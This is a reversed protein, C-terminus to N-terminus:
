GQNNTKFISVVRNNETKIERGLSYRVGESVVVAEIRLNIQNPNQDDPIDTRVSLEVSDFYRELYNSLDHEVKSQLKNPDQGHQQIHYPLSTILGSYIFSQSWESTIYYAMLADARESIETLWGTASLSPVQTVM